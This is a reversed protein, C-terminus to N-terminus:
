PGMGQQSVPDWGSGAVMLSPVQTPGQPVGMLAHLSLRSWLQRAHGYWADIHVNVDVIM